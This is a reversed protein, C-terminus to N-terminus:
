AVDVLAATVVLVVSVGCRCCVRAGVLGVPGATAVPSRRMGLWVVPVVPARWSGAAVVMVVRVALRAARM